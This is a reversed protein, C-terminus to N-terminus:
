RPWYAKLRTRIEAQVKTESNYMNKDYVLILIVTQIVGSSACEEYILRYGGSKGKSSDTNVVRTKFIRHEDFGPYPATYPAVQIKGAELLREVYIVDQEVSRFRKKLQKIDKSIQSVRCCQAVSKM